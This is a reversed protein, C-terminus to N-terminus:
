SADQAIIFAAQKDHGNRSPSQNEPSTVLAWMGKGVNKFRDDMSLYSGITRVGGGIHHGRAQLKDLIVTRHLPGYEALISSMADTLEKKYTGQQPTTVEDDDVSEVERITIRMADISAQLREMEDEKKRLIRNLVKLTEERKM